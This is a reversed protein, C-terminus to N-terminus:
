YLTVRFILAANHYWLVNSNVLQYTIPDWLPYVKLFVSILIGFRVCFVRDKFDTQYLFYYHRAVQLSM